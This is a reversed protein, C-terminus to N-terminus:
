AIRAEKLRVILLCTCPSPKCIEDVAVCVLCCSEKRPLFVAWAKDRSHKTGSKVTPHLGAIERTLSGTESLHRQGSLMLGDVILVVAGAFLESVLAGVDRHGM